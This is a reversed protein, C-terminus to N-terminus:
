MDGTFHLNIDEMPLSAYGDAEGGKIGMVPGLRNRPHCDYNKKGIKNLADVLVLPLTKM